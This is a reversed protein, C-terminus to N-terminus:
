ARLKVEVNLERAREPPTIVAAKLVGTETVAFTETADFTEKKTFPFTKGPHL